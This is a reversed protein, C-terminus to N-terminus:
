KPDHAVIAIPVEHNPRSSIVRSPQEDGLLILVTNKTGYREVFSYVTRLSYKIATAFGQQTDTLGARDIPVHNFVSGDGLRKWSTLRPVRTWPEHSSSLFIESFSHRRHPKALESKQLAVLAYQDPMTAFGFQPGRYGLNNRTWIKEYRYFSRGDRWSGRTAPMDAATAWGARRFAAALALRKSGVLESYRGPSNVWVGSQLTADALWSGGGFNPANLWGSRSAFGEAQLRQTGENVVADIGPSFSTGEVAMQGYSEVFVLLVDKGRLGKLLRDPSKDLYPDKRALLAKFQAQSRFDAQM